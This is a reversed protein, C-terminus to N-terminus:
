YDTVKFYLETMIPTLAFTIFQTFDYIKLEPVM